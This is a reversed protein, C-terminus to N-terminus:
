TSLEVVQAQWHLPPAWSQVGGPPEGVQTHAQRPPCIRLPLQWHTQGAPCCNQLPLALQTGAQVPPWTGVPGLQVQLQGGPVVSQVVVPAQMVLQVPPWVRLWAVQVQVQGAPLVSQWPVQTVLQGSLWTSLAEVQAQPQGEPVM